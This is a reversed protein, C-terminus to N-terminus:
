AATTSSRSGCTMANGLIDLYGNPVHPTVLFVRKNNVSNSM